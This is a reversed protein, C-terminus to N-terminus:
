NSGGIKGLNNFSVQGTIEPVSPANDFITKALLHHPINPLNQIFQRLHLEASSTGFELGLDEITLCDNGAITRLLKGLSLPKLLRYVDPNNSVAFAIFKDGIYAAFLDQKLPIEISIPYNAAVDLAEHNLGISNRNGPVSSIASFADISNSKGLISQTYEVFDQRM